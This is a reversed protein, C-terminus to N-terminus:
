DNGIPIYSRTTDHLGGPRIGTTTTRRYITGNVKVTDVGDGTKPVNKENFYIKGKSEIANEVRTKLGGIKDLMKAVEVIQGDKDLAAKKHFSNKMGGAMELLGNADIDDPTTESKTEQMNRGNEHTIVSGGSQTSEGGDGEFLDVIKGILRAVALVIPNIGTLTSKPDGQSNDNEEGSKAGNEGDSIPTTSSWSASESLEGYGDTPMTGDPDVFTIPNNFAYNYPSYRPM